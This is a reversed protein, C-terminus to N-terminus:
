KFQDDSLPINMKYNAISILVEAKQGKGKNITKSKATGDDFDFTLGKPLKYDKTNFAFIIQDPLGWVVYNKYKMELEYSGNEKTTTMTKLILQNEPNIYLTTLVIDSSEDSPLLKIVRVPTSQITSNGGDIVVFNGESFISNLNVNVAGKPLFSVGSSTRLKVKGPKKYLLKIKSVPIKLFSVNTKLMGNAEYSSVKDLKKQVAKLLVNADQAECNSLSFSFFSLLVLLRNIM